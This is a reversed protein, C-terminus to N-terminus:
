CETHVISSGRYSSVHLLNGALKARKGTILRQPHGRVILTERGRRQGQRQERSIFFLLLFDWARGVQVVEIDTNWLLFAQSHSQKSPERPNPSINEVLSFHGLQSSVLVSVNKAQLCESLVVKWALFLAGGLQSYHLLGTQVVLALIPWGPALGLGKQLWTTTVDGGGTGNKKDRLVWICIPILCLWFYM